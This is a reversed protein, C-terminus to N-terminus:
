TIDLVEGRLFLTLSTSELFLFERDLFSDDLPFGGNAVRVIGTVRKANGSPLKRLCIVRTSLSFLTKLFLDQDVNSESNANSRLELDSSVSVLTLFSRVRYKTIVKILHKTDVLCAALLLDPQEWIVLPKEHKSKLVDDM